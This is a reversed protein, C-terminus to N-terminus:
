AAGELLSPVSSNPVTALTTDIRALEGALTTVRAAWFSAVDDDPATTTHHEARALDAAKAARLEALRARRQAPTGYGTHETTFSWIALSVRGPEDADIAAHMALGERVRDEPWDDGPFSRQLNVAHALRSLAARYRRAWRFDDAGGPTEGAVRFLEVRAADLEDATLDHIM